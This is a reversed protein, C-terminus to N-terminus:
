SLSTAKLFLPKQVSRMSGVGLDYSEIHGGFSRIVMRGGGGAKSMLVLELPITSNRHADHITCSSM